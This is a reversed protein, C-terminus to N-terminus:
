KVERQVKRISKPLIGLKSENAILFKSANPPVILAEGDYQITVPYNAKSYLYCSKVQNAM